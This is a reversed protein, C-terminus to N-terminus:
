SATGVNGVDQQRREGASIYFSSKLGDNPGIRQQHSVAAARDGAGRPVETDGKLGHRGGVAAVNTARVMYLRNVLVMGTELAPYVVFETAHRGLVQRLVERPHTSKGPIPIM